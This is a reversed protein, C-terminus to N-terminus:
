QGEPVLLRDLEQQATSTTADDPTLTGFYVQVDLYQDNVRALIRYRSLNPAVRGEWDAQLHTESLQLPLELDPFNPNNAPAPNQEPLPLMAVIVVGNAPLDRLTAEPRGPLTNLQPVFALDSAKIPVNAAWAIPIDGSGV